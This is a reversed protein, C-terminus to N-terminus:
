ETGGPRMTIVINVSKTVDRQTLTTLYM